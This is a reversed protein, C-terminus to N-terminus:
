RLGPHREQPLRRLRAAAQSNRRAEAAEAATKRKHHWDCLARLNNLSHDDGQVNHDVDTARSTCRAGNDTATCRHGDRALVRARRTPWDSPLRSRRNSKDWTM